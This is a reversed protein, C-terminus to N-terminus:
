TRGGILNPRAGPAGAAKVVGPLKGPKFPDKTLEAILEETSVDPPSWSGAILCALDAPRMFGRHKREYIAVVKGLTWLRRANEVTQSM